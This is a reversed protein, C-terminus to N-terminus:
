CIVLIRKMMGRIRIPTLGSDACVFLLPAHRGARAVDRLIAPRLHLIAILDHQGAQLLVAGLDALAALLRQRAVPLLLTELAGGGYLYNPLWLTM